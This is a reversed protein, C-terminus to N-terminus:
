LIIVKFLERGVDGEERIRALESELTICQERYMNSLRQEQMLQEQM